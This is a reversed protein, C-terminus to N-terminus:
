GKRNPAAALVAGAAGGEKEKPAAAGEAAEDVAVAGEDPGAGNTKLGAEEVPNPLM